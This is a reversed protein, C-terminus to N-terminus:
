WRRKHVWGCDRRHKPLLDRHYEFHQRDSRIQRNWSCMCSVLRSSSRSSPDQSLRLILLQILSQSLHTTPSRSTLPMSPLHQSRLLKEDCQQFVVEALKEKQDSTMLQSLEALILVALSADSRDTEHLALFLNVFKRAHYELSRPVSPAGNSTSQLPINTGRELMGVLDIERQERSGCLMQGLFIELRICGLMERLALQKCSQQGSTSLSLFILSPQVKPDQKIQDRDLTRMLILDRLIPPYLLEFKQRIRVLSALSSEESLRVRSPLFQVVSSRIAFDESYQLIAELLRIGRERLHRRIFEVVPSDLLKQRWLQQEDDIDINENEPNLLDLCQTLFEAELEVCHSSCREVGVVVRTIRHFSEAPLMPLPLEVTQQSDGSQSKEKERIQKRFKIAKETYSELRSALQLFIEIRDRLTISCAHDSFVWVCAIAAHLAEIVVTLRGYEMSTSLNKSISYQSLDATALGRFLRWIVKMLDSSEAIQDQRELPNVLTLGDTNSIGLALFILDSICQLSTTLSIPQKPSQKGRILSRM